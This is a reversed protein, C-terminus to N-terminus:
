VFQGKTLKQVKLLASNHETGENEYLEVMEPAVQAKFKREKEARENTLTMLEMM